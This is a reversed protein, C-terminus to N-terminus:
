NKTKWAAFVGTLSVLIQIFGILMNIYYTSAVNATEVSIMAFTIHIVGSGLAGITLMVYGNPADFFASIFVIISFILLFWGITHIDMYDSMKIYLDSVSKLNNTDATIWTFSRLFGLGSLLLVFLKVLIENQHLKLLKKM